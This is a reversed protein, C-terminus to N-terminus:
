PVALIADVEWSVHGSGDQYIQLSFFYERESTTLYQEIFALTLGPSTSRAPAAYLTGGLARVHMDDVVDSPLLRILPLSEPPAISKVSGKIVPRQYLQNISVAVTLIHDATSSESLQLLVRPGDKAPTDEHSIASVQGVFGIHQLEYAEMHLLLKSLDSFSCVNLGFTEKFQDIDTPLSNRPRYKKEIHAALKSEGTAKHSVLAANKKVNNAFYVNLNCEEISRFPLVAENMRLVSFVSTTAYQIRKDVTTAGPLIAWQLKTIMLTNGAELSRFVAPQSCEELRIVLEHSSSSDIMKVWRFETVKASDEDLRRKRSRSIKGVNSLVGVFDFYMVARDIIAGMGWYLTNLSTVFSCELWSPQLQQLDLSGGETQTDQFKANSVEVVQSVLKMKKLLAWYTRPVHLASGSSEHEYFMLPTTRIMHQSEHPSIVSYGRFQILDGEHLSLYYKACMSGFFAVEFVTTADEVIANFMFPFPNAIDPEGINMVMSKVRIAGIMPPNAKRGPGGQEAKKIEEFAEDIPYIKKCGPTFLSTCYKPHINWAVAASATQRGETEPGSYKSAWNRELEDLPSDEDPQGGTFSCAWDLTYHDSRLPLYYAREGALPVLEVERPHVTSLFQLQKAGVVKEPLAEDGGLSTVTLEQLLVVRHRQKADQPDECFVKFKTVRVISRASLERKWVLTHLKPALVAKLKHRGDSLLVDFVDRSDLGLREKLAPDALYRFVSLVQLRVATLAAADQYLQRVGHTTLSPASGSM